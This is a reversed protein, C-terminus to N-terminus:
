HVFYRMIDNWTVLIMLFLVFGFGIITVVGETQQSLPKRRIAEIVNLVLKGGDLAPIPLLNVIGLNLSLFGLWYLIGSWGAQTATATNAYIAVPGGLDNLSFHTFLHGLAAFLLVTTNWFGGFLKAFFGTDIGRKIGVTRTKSGSVTKVQPTIKVHKVTKQGRKIGLTIDGHTDSTIASTVATWSNTRKDNVSVIRDGSKLGASKAPTNTLVGSIANSNSAVGGMAFGMIAFVLWALIFNNLPGAFNTLIRHWLTASQFQVDRPAILVETGDKEIITADHDVAYTKVVSEDGNEYGKIVLQDVLDSETVIVPIGNFLTTQDSANIRTVKGSDGVMVSIPTGPQLQDDEDEAAGAMRVYGGLPLIRITYLTGNKRTWFVKPGMGISFERVLIGSRKAFYFHGFEHVVVLIGFVIIFAVITKVM